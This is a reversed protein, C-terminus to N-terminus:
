RYLSAIDCHTCAIQWLHIPKAKIRVWEAKQDCCPCNKITEM